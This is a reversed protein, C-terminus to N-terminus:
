AHTTAAAAPDREYRDLQHLHELAPLAAALAAQERPPLKEVLRVFEEAGQARRERLLREGQPTVSVLAARGDTPDPHREVLGAQELNKVLVTMSPQTVGQIVALDSVRRAGTSELSSLTMLATLHLNRPPRRRIGLPVLAYLAAGISRAADAEPRVEDCM